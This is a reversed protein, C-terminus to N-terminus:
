CGRAPGGRGSEGASDEAAGDARFEQVREPFRCGACVANSHECYDRVIQLMGQQAAAGPLRRRCQGGFLRQRALRLVANDQAAPWAAYRREIAEITSALRGETARIWLWPLVANLALDTARSPGLLPHPRADRPSRLTWHRGWYEDHTGATLEALLAPVLQGRALPALGWRELRSPLDGGSWWHAALALRRQPHNAPRLGALRWVARPLSWPVFASRERWWIDWLRRVLSSAPPTGTCDEPLLGGCGLLRAQLLLPDTGREDPCLQPKLEALRQMPWDNHKYGLGRFLGEWLAQNWGAQRARAQFRAGKAQLRLRAAQHLLHLVEPDSLGRLPRCCQGALLLPFEHVPESSLWFALEGLSADLCGKLSLTPLHWRGSEDWVVHLAVKRFAPNRDHGHATWGSAHLDVEVDGSIPPDTDLRLVAQRFDPGPEHNWFGPHLVQLARGDVTHLQDRCIRQHFWVAQLLREPPPDPEERLAPVAGTRLRADAYGNPRGGGGQM